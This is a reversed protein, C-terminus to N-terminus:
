FLPIHDPKHEDNVVGNKIHDKWFKPFTEIIMGKSAALKNKIWQPIPLSGCPDLANVFIVTVEGNDYQEETQSLIYGYKNIHGRIHKPKPNTNFPHDEKISYLLSGIITKYIVNDVKYDSEKWRIKMACFDRPSVIWFGSDHSSHIIQHNHDILKVIRSETCLPDKQMEETLNNDNYGCEIFNYFFDIESLEAKMTMTSRLTCINTNEIQKYVISIKPNKTKHIIWNNKKLDEVSQFANHIVEEKLKMELDLDVFDEYKLNNCNTEKAM